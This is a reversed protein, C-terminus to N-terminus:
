SSGASRWTRRYPPATRAPTRVVGANRPLHEHRAVVHRATRRDTRDGGGAEADGGDVDAHRLQRHVGGALQAAGVVRGPQGAARVASGRRQGGGQSPSGPDPGDDPHDPPAPKPEDFLRQLEAHLEATVTAISGAPSGAPRSPARRPDARRHDHAGQAPPHDQRGAADGQGFRRHRGPHDARRGQGGRLGCRRVAAARDPRVQARGRPVAGAARRGRAGRHLAQAGRSRGHRPRGPVGGLTSLLGASGAQEGVHRKGMFRMRRRTVCAAIPTDINSRHVPALVYAGATPM